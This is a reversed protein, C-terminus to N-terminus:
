VCLDLCWMLPFSCASLTECITLLYPACVGKEDWTCLPNQCVVSSPRVPIWMCKILMPSSWNSVASQDFFDLWTCDERLTLPITKQETTKIAINNNVFLGHQWRKTSGFIRDLTKGPPNNWALHSPLQARPPYPIPTAHTACCCDSDNRLLAKSTKHMDNTSRWRPWDHIIVIALTPSPHVVAMLHCLMVMPLICKGQLLLWQGSYFRDSTQHVSSPEM